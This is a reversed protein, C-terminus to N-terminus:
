LAPGRGRDRPPPVVARAAKADDAVALRVADLAPDRAGVHIGVEADRGHKGRPQVPDLVPGVGPGLQLAVGVLCALGLRERRRQALRDIQPLAALEGLPREALRYPLVIQVVPPRLLPQEVLHDGVVLARPHELPALRPVDATDTYAPAGFPAARRPAKSLLHCTFRSQHTGNVPTANMTTRIMPPSM